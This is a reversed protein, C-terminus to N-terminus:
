IVVTYDNIEVMNSPVSIVINETSPSNIKPLMGHLEQMYLGNIKENYQIGHEVYLKFVDNLKALEEENLIAKNLMAVKKLEGYLRNNQITQWCRQKEMVQIQSRLSDLKVSVRRKKISDIKSNLVGLKNQKEKYYNTFIEKEIQNKLHIGYDDVMELDGWDRIKQIKEASCCRFICPTSTDTFKEVIFERIHTKISKFTLTVFYVFFYLCIAGNVLLLIVILVDEFLGLKYNSEITGFFLGTSLTMVLSLLSVSELQNCIMGYSTITDYPRLFVHLFFSMQMLLSAGIIQYRPHNRSFVSLLILGAKKAMIIFEYYWRKERYGLFLFSLPTSGDYRNQMDFLRFRYKYLLRFGLLPIGIGYLILGIYGVILYTYHQSDYCVVSVDKVLYYKEGIKECNMIELTKEVITPWSLFTGVVIATKEWAIFFEMCSPSTKKFLEQQSTTMNKLIRKKKKCYCLSILFIIVTVTFIYVL